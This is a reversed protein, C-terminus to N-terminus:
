CILGTRSGVYGRFLSAVFGTEVYLPFDGAVGEGAPLRNKAASVIVGKAANFRQIAPM